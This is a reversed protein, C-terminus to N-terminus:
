LIVFPVEANALTFYLGELRTLMYNSLFLPAVNLPFFFFCNKLVQLDLLDCQQM